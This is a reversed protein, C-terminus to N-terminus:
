HYWYRNQTVLSPLSEISHVEVDMQVMRLQFMRASSANENLCVVLGYPNAALSKRIWENERAPEEFVTLLSDFPKNFFNLNQLKQVEDVGYVKVQIDSCDNFVQRIMDELMRPLGTLALIKRNM